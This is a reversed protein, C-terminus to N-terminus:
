RSEPEPTAPSHTTALAKWLPPAITPRVTRVSGDFILVNVGQAHGSSAGMFASRGDDAVCSSPNGPLLAHNYLTSRWSVEAWSSGADGRWRQLAAAPCGSDGLPGPVLAYDGPSAVGNRGTGALREAFAATYSLGDGQEIDQLKITHGPAFGGSRGEPLDGTTARYSVPAPFLAATARRDSPCTFGPVPRAGPVPGPSPKQRPNASDLSVLDSLQLSELLAKLPGSGPTTSALTPVVPLQGEHQDYLAIAQGIHLLNRRCAALRASERQRPLAAVVFLGFLAAVLVLVVVEARTVGRRRCRVALPTSLGLNCSCIKFIIM